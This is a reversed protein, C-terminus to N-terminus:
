HPYHNRMKSLRFTDTNFVPQKLCFLINRYFKVSEDKTRRGGFQLYCIVQVFEGTFDAFFFFLALVAFYVVTLCLSFYIHKCRVVM